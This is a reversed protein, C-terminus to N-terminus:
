CPNPIPPATVFPAQQHCLGACRQDPPGQNSRMRAGQIVVRCWSPIYPHANALFCVQSACQWHHSAQHDAPLNPSLPRGNGPRAAKAATCRNCCTAVVATAAPTVTACAPMCQHWCPAPDAAQAVGPIASRQWQTCIATATTCTDEKAAQLDELWCLFLLFCQVTTAVSSLLAALLRMCLQVPLRKPWSCSAHCCWCYCNCCYLTLPYNHCFCLCCRLCCSM